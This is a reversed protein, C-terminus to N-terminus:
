NVVVTNKKGKNKKCPATQQIIYWLKSWMSTILPPIISNSTYTTAELASLCVPQHLDSNWVTQSFSTRHGQAKYGLLSGWTTSILVELRMNNPIMFRHNIDAGPAKHIICYVSIEWYNATLIVHRSVESMNKSLLRVVM